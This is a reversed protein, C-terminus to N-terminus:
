KILASTSHLATSRQTWLRYVSLSIDTGISVILEVAYVGYGSTQNTTSICHSFNKIGESTWSYELPNKKNFSHKSLYTRIQLHKRVYISYWDLKCMTTTWYSKLSNFQQLLLNRMCGVTEHQQHVLVAARPWLPTGSDLDSWEGKVITITVCLTHLFGETQNGSLNMLRLLHWQGRKSMIFAINATQSM